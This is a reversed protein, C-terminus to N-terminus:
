KANIKSGKVKINERLRGLDKRKLNRAKERRM